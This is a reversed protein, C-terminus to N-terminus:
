ERLCYFIFRTLFSGIFFFLYFFYGVLEISTRADQLKLERNIATEDKSTTMEVDEPEPEQFTFLLFLLFHAFFCEYLVQEEMTPENDIKQQHDPLGLPHFVL